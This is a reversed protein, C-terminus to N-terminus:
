LDKQLLSKSYMLSSIDNKLSTKEQNSHHIENQLQRIMEQQRFREAESEVLRTQLIAKDKRLDDVM